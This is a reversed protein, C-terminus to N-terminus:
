QQSRHVITRWRHTRTPFPASPHPTPATSCMASTRMSQMIWWMLSGWFTIVCAGYASYRVQKRKAQLGEVEEKNRRYMLEAQLLPVHPIPPPPNLLPNHSPPLPLVTTYSPPLSLRSGSYPRWFLPLAAAAAATVKLTLTNGVGRKAQQQFCRESDREREFVCLCVCM